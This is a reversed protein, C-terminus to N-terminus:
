EVSGASGSLLALIEKYISEANRRFHDELLECQRRTLAQLEVRLQDESGDCVRLEVTFSGDPRQTHMTKISANRRIMLLVRLAAKEARDRVSAPLEREMPDLVEAGKPTLIYKEQGPDGVAAVLKNELLKQFATSFEFYGFADDIMVVDLLDGEPIAVPFFRLAYLILYQIDREERIFGHRM